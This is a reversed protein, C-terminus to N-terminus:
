PKSSQFLCVAGSVLLELREGRDLVQLVAALTCAHIEVLSGRSSLWAPLVRVLRTAETLQLAPEAVCVMCPLKCAGDSTSWCLCLPLFVGVKEINEQMIHKVESVNGRLRSITDAEPNTAFFKLREELVQLCASLHPAMLSHLFQQVM